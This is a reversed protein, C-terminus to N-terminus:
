RIVNKQTQLQKDREDLIQEIEAEYKMKMQNKIRSRCCFNHEPLLEKMKVYKM